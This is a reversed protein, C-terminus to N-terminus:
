SDWILRFDDAPIESLGKADDLPQDTLFGHEDELHEWSYRHPRGSSDVEIQRVAVRHGDDEIVEFLWRTEPDDPDLGALYIRPRDSQQLRQFYDARQDSM